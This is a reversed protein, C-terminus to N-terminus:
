PVFNLGMWGVVDRAEGEFVDRKFGLMDPRGREMVWIRETVGREMHGWVCVQWLLSIYTHTHIRPHTVISKLCLMFHVTSCQTRTRKHTHM